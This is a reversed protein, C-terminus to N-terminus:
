IWLIKGWSEQRRRGYYNHCNTWFPFWFEPLRALINFISEKKKEAHIQIQFWVGPVILELSVREMEFDNVACVRQFKHISEVTLPEYLAM